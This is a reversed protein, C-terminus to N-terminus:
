LYTGKKDLQLEDLTNNIIKKSTMIWIHYCNLLIVGSKINADSSFGLIEAPKILYESNLEDDASISLRYIDRLHKLRDFVEKIQKYNSSREKDIECLRNILNESIPERIEFYSKLILFFMEIDRLGGHCEKINYDIEQSTNNINHRDKLELVMEHIFLEKQDFIFPNIIKDYFMDDFVNSGVVRRSGLLQAKNIFSCDDKLSLISKMENITTVFNGTYDSFRFHPLISRKIIEANMRSIIKTSYKYLETNESNLIAVLDYDDDFAQGRGHGGTVYLAILDYTAIQKAWEEDIEMKCLDFLMRLYTDSFETFESNVYSFNMGKLLELGTRLYEIDYYDGLLQKKTKLNTHREVQGLLGEAIHKLTAPEDLFFIYEPYNGAVKLFFRKCYQSTGCHLETLHRLKKTFIKSEEEWHDVKLLDCFKEQKDTSISLLYDNVLKPYHSFVKSLRRIEDPTGKIMRFFNDNIKNLLDKIELVNIYKTMLMIISFLAYFSYNSIEVYREIVANKQKEALSTFDKVLMKLIKLNDSELTIIVDDWFKTGRFFHALNAFEVAVNFAKKELQPIEPTVKSLKSFVSISQLHKTVMEFIRDTKEKAVHIYEFYHTLLREYANICGVKGYGMYEAVIRINNFSESSNLSIEEDQIVLLQYLFRFTEIFLLAEELDIYLERYEFNKAYLKALIEYKNAEKICYMTKAAFLLSRIMVIADEKPCIVDKSITRLLLSRVDGLIGRLYGEHYINNRDKKYYYRDTVSKEFKKFLSYNGLIYKAGLMESIIIFDHIEQDFLANYEDICATFGPEGVYQSLYFHLPIAYKIMENNLRGIALNLEKRSGPANDIIGVDLDDQDIRTGVGCIVFELREKKPLFQDLVKNMYAANLHRFKYGIQFQMDKFVSFKNEKAALNLFLVDLAGLNMHFYQIAYYCGLLDLKEQLSQCCKLIIDMEFSPNQSEKWLHVQDIFGKKELTQVLVNGFLEISRRYKRTHNGLSESRKYIKQLFSYM